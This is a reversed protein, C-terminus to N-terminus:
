CGLSVQNFQSGFQLRHLSPQKNTESAYDYGDHGDANPYQM